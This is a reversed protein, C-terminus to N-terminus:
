SIFLRSVDLVTARSNGRGPSVGLGGLASDDREEILGSLLAMAAM